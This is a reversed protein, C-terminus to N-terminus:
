SKTAKRQNSVMDITDFPLGVYFERIKEECNDAM